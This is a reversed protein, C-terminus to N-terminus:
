SGAKLWALYEDRNVPSPSVRRRKPPEGQVPAYGAFASEVVGEGGSLSPLQRQLEAYRSAQLATDITTTEGVQSPTPSECGLSM